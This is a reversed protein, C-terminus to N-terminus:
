ASAHISDNRCSEATTQQRVEIQTRVAKSTTSGGSDDRKLFEATMRALGAPDDLWPLHGADAIMRLEAEPMAGVLYRAVDSGGFADDTGWLFLTPVTVAGLVADSLTLAPRNRVLRAIMEGDNRMTDTHRQLELYWDFFAQPLRGSDLSRGHGIQRMISRNARESPPLANLLKRVWDRTILRMFPPAQEGPSLAPCAMQVMRRFREPQAAASRLALHGGFSSAVVHAREIAMADLVEAVFAAGFPALNEATVPYDESLGTGPRDVLLCRFGALHELLPAWTSSANPGGHIFLVPAGEGIERVRVKVDLQPLRVFRETPARGVREWLIKEAARYRPENM